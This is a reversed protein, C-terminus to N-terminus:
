GVSFFFESPATHLSYSPQPTDKFRSVDLKEQSERATHVRANYTHISNLPKRKKSNPQMKQALPGLVEKYFFPSEPTSDKPTLLLTRDLSNGLLCDAHAKRKCNDKKVRVAPKADAPLWITEPKM